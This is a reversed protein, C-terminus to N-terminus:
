RFRPVLKLDLRWRMVTTACFRSLLASSLTHDSDSYGWVPLSNNTWVLGYGNFNRKCYSGRAGDSDKLRWWASPPSHKSCVCKRELAKQLLRDYNISLDTGIRAVGTPTNGGRVFWSLGSNFCKLMSIVTPRQSRRKPTLKLQLFGWEELLTKWRDAPHEPRGVFVGGRTWHQELNNISLTKLLIPAMPSSILPQWGSKKYSNRLTGGTCNKRCPKLKEWYLHKLKNCSGRRCLALAIAESLTFLLQRCDM